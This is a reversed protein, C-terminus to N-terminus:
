ARESIDARLRCNRDGALRHDPADDGPESRMADGFQNQVKVMTGFRQRSDHSIAGIQRRAHAVRPLRPNEAAATTRTLGQGEERIREEDHVPVRDGVDIWGSQGLRM